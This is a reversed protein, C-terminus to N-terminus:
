APGAEHRKKLVLARGMFADVELVGHAVPEGETLRRRDVEKGLLEQEIQARGDRGVGIVGPSTGRALGGCRERRRAEAEEDGPRLDAFDLSRGSQRSKTSASSKVASEFAM